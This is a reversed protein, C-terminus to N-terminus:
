NPPTWANAPAMLDDDTPKGDDTPPAVAPGSPGPPPTAASGGTPPPSSGAPQSAAGGYSAPLAPAPAPAGGASLVRVDPLQNPNKWTYLTVGDPTHVTLMREPGFNDPVRAAQVVPDKQQNDLWDGFSKM